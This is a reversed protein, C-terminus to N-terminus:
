CALPQRKKVPGTSVSCCAFPRALLLQECGHVSASELVARFEPPARVHQMELDPGCAYTEEFNALGYDIIKFQPVSNGAPLRGSDDVAPLSSASHGNTRESPQIGNQEGAPQAAPAAQLRRSDKMGATQLLSVFNQAQTCCVLSPLASLWWGAQSEENCASSDRCSAALRTAPFLGAM